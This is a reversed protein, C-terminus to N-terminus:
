RLKRELLELIQEKTKPTFNDYYTQDEDECNGNETVAELKGIKITLDNPENYFVGLKGIHKKLYLRNSYAM